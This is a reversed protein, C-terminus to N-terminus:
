LPHALSRMLPLSWEWVKKKNFGGSQQAKVGLAERARRLTRESILLEMAQQTAEQVSVKAGDALIQQLFNIAEALKSREDRAENASEHDTLDDPNVECTGLWQFPPTQKKDLSFMLSEQMGPGLNSKFHSVIRVNGFPDSQDKVVMIMSRAAGAYDISGIGQHIARGSTKRFHRNILFACNLDRAVKILPTFMKRVSTAKNADFGQATAAYLTIPDIIIIDPKVQKAIGRIDRVDTATFFIEDEHKFRVIKIRRTDAGLWDLRSRITKAPDDETTLVLASRIEGAGSNLPEPLPCKKSGTLGALYAIWLWSKGVDPDGDLITVEGRPLIPDIIMEVPEPEIDAFSIIEYRSWIRNQERVEEALADMLKWAKEIIRKDESIEDGCVEDLAACMRGVIWCGVGDPPRKGYTEWVDECVEQSFSALGAMPGRKWWPVDDVVKAEVAQEFGNPPERYGGEVSDVRNM